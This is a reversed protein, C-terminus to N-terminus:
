SGVCEAAAVVEFALFQTVQKRNFNDDSVLVLSKNGNDLEPGWAIGEINDPVPSNSPNLELLLQKTAAQFEDVALSEIASIDSAQSIDAAYLRIFNHYQGAENQVAAREVVLFRVDDLALMATVGNDAFKGKGPAEPIADVPYAVQNMVEGERSYQTLRVMAGATPTPVEGDQWLPAEMAVWLSQRDHSFSLGEFALNNRPGLKQKAKMVFMSPIPLERIFEGERTTQRIFPNLQLRRDGESIYWISDDMSDFRIDEIDPVDGGQKRSPYLEQNQQTFYVVDNLVVENFAKEDYDFKATYFRAANYDSRDDSVVVWTDTDADYDIGSLGGVTTEQFQQKYALQQQGIFRLFPLSDTSCAYTTESFSVLLMAVACRSTFALFNM